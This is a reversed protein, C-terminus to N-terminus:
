VRPGPECATGAKRSHLRRDVFYPERSAAKAFGEPAQHAGGNSSIVAPSWRFERHHLAV